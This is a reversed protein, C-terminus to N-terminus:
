SVGSDPDNSTPATSYSNVPSYFFLIVFQLQTHSALLITNPIRSIIKSTGNRRKKGEGVILLDQLPIPMYDYFIEFNKRVALIHNYLLCANKCPTLNSSYECVMLQINSEESKDIM